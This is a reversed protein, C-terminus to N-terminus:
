RFYMYYNCKIMGNYLKRKKDAKRGFLSEFREHPTIAFFTQGDGPHFVEGMTRYIQEAEKVELM